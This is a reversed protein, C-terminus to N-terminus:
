DGEQVPPLTFYFTAGKDPDSKIEKLVERGDKKPLNLDLLILDPHAVAAYKGKQHLYDMAEVGDSVSAFVNGIKSGKLAEQTLRVDGPNDEVLLIQIIKGNKELSFNSQAM